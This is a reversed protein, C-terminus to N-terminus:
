PRGLDVPRGRMHDLAANMLGFIHLVVGYHGCNLWRIPPRGYARWLSLTCGEPIVEDRRANIMLVDDPRVRAAFTLPDVPRLAAELDPVDIPAGELMGQVEPSEELLRKVDGGGIVLLTRGLRTDVGRALGVVVAGLSVGVAGVQEADTEPLARLFDAARIVDLAAQRFGMFSGVPDEERLFGQSTGPERRRGYNPLSIAFSAVGNQALHQALYAEAEFSGGLHHVVVAAPLGAREGVPLYLVGHVEGWREDVPSPFVASRGVYRRHREVPGLHIPFEAAPLRYQELEAPGRPDVPLAPHAGLLDPARSTDPAPPDALGPATLAALLALAPLASRTM